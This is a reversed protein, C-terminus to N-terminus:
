NEHTAPSDKRDVNDHIFYIVCSIGLLRLANVARLLCIRSFVPLNKSRNIADKKTIIGYTVSLLGNDILNSFENDNDLLAKMKTRSETEMRLLEVSNVGQNFLCITESNGIQQESIL